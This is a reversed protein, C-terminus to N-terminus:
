WRGSFSVGAGGDIGISLSSDDVVEDAPVVLPLLAGGILGAAGAGWEAASPTYRAGHLIPVVTGIASGVLAGVVVDSYFHKGARVRLHATAAAAGMMAGWWLARYGVPMAVTEDVLLVGSWAATFATSAHGSYFSLCADQSRSCDYQERIRADPHYTYPRPRRVAYKMVGNLALNVSLAQAHVLSANWFRTGTTGAGLFVVPAVMEVVVLGDSVRAATPSYYDVVGSDALVVFRDVMPEEELLSAGGAVLLAGATVSINTVWYENSRKERAAQAHAAPCRLVSAAFVFVGVLISREAGMGGLNM